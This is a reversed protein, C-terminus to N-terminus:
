GGFSAASTVRRGDIVCNYAAHTHGTLFVDVERSTRDVIDEM